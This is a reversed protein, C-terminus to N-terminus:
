VVNAASGSDTAFPRRLLAMEDADFIGPKPIAGDGRFRAVDRDTIQAPAM